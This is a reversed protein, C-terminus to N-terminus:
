GEPAMKPKWIDSGSGQLKTPFVQLIMAMM